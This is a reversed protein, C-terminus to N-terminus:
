KNLFAIIENVKDRLSNIDARGFDGSFPNIKLTTVTEGTTSPANLIDIDGVSSAESALKKEIKM